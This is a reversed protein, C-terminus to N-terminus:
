LEITYNTHYFGYGEATSHAAYDACELSSFYFVQEITGRKRFIDQTIKSVVEPEAHITLKMVPELLCVQASKLVGQFFICFSPMLIPTLIVPDCVNPDM